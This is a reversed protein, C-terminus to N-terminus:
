FFVGCVVGNKKEKLFIKKQKKKRIKTIFLPNFFITKPNTNKKTKKKNNIKTIYFMNKSYLFFIKQNIKKYNSKLFKMAYYLM